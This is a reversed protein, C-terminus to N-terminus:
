RCAAVEADIFRRLFTTKGSGSSGIIYLHQRVATELFVPEDTEVNAGVLFHSHEPPTVAPVKPKMKNTLRVALNEIAEHLNM